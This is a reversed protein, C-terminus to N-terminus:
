NPVIVHGVPESCLNSGCGGKEKPCVFTSPDTAEKPLRWTKSCKPNSCPYLDVAQEKPVIATPNMVRVNVSPVFGAAAKKAFGEQRESYQDYVMRVPEKYGYTCVKFEGHAEQGEPGLIKWTHEPMSGWALQIESRFFMNFRKVIPRFTEFITKKESSFIFFDETSALQMPSGSKFILMKGPYKPHFCGGAVSGSIRNLHRFAKENWGEADMIARLIDTDTEAKRELRLENFLTDDNRIVGNHIVACGGAYMPHNNENKQPIGQSAGRAHLLVALSTEHLKETIFKDYEDSSVFNWPQVDRKCVDIEGNAQLIALGTADNGRHENGVLLMSIHEELIPKKGYKYIGAIGCM